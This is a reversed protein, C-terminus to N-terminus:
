EISFNCISNAWDRFPTTKFGKVKSAAFDYYDNTYTPITPLLYNWRKQYAKWNESFEKEDKSAKLNEIVKNLEADNLGYPNFNAVKEYKGHYDAEPDPVENFGSAMNYVNYKVEAKQKQYYINLMTEFDKVTIEYKIGVQPANKTLQLKINDTITNKESGLHSILLVEGKSNYRLYDKSAKKADFPTKGDKEYKYDSKDLAKNANAISFSYTNLNKDVWEKNDIYVKQAAGYDSYCPKGYAGMAAQAIKNTDVIYALAQRVNVDKTAGYYCSIPMNGYGNRPYSSITFKDGQAKVKDIKEAEIAGAVIDVEGAVLTDVDKDMDIAKVTIKEISPKKGEWNGAYEKNLTLQVQQNKFGEFKYPGCTVTPNKLFTNKVYDAIAAQDKKAIKAGKDDSTIKVDKAVVHAPLPYSWLFNKEWYYPLNKAAITISFSHDDIMKVGSFTETKGASFADYGEIEYGTPNGNADIWSKSARMLYTMVYDNATVPKGDNWKLGDNLTVTFTKSGDKNNKVAPEGKLTVKTEWKINGDNDVIVPNYGHILDRISKDYSNNGFGEIFEGNMKDQGVVLKNEAKSSGCGALSVTMLAAVALTLLKKM